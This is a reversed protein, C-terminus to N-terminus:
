NTLKRKKQKKPVQLEVRSKYLETIMDGRRRQMNRWKNKGVENGYTKKFAKGVERKQKKHGLQLFRQCSDQDEPLKLEAAVEAARKDAEAQRKRASKAGGNRGGEAKRKRDGNRGGRVCSSVYDFPLKIKGAKDLGAQRVLPNEEYTIEESSLWESRVYNIADHYGQMYIQRREKHQAAPGPVLLNISPANIAEKFKGDKDKYTFLGFTDAKAGRSFKFGQIRKAGLRTLVKRGLKGQFFYKENTANNYVTDACEQVSFKVIEAEPGIYIKNPGRRNTEGTAGKVIDELPFLKGEKYEESFTCAVSLMYMLMGTACPKGDEGRYIHLYTDYKKRTASKDVAHKFAYNAPLPWTSYLRVDTSDAVEHSARADHMEKMSLPKPTRISGLATTSSGDRRKSDAQAQPRPSPEFSAAASLEYEKKVLRTYSLVRKMSGSGSGYLQTEVGARCYNASTVSTSM